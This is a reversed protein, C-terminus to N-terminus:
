QMHTLVKFYAQGLKWLEPFERAVRDTLDEVFLVNQPVKNPDPDPSFM